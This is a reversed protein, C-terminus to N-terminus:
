GAAAARGSPEPPNGLRASSKGEARAPFREGRSLLWAALQAPLGKTAPQGLDLDGAFAVHGGRRVWRLDLADGAAEAAPGIASAPVMPDTPCAVLLAPVDLNRLRPGVSARAYYDEPSAFGFRPVVTLADYDRLTRVRRVRGVPTPVPGLEAISAYIRKLGDLIYRRYPWAALGRRDFGVQAAKLDLPACVAAVAVLRPDHAETGYRLVVHGGLSFGAVCVRQYRALEPAALAAALDATLGAHYFDGAKGDSGRLGLRLAAAGAAACASAVAVQYPSDCSGGLGHVLVVVTDAGAISGLRGSLPVAGREADVVVGRWPESALPLPGLIARQLRPWMTWLHARVSLAYGRRVPASTSVVATPATWEHRKNDEAGLTAENVLAREASGRGAPLWLSAIYAM